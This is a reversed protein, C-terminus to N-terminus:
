QSKTQLVQKWDSKITYPFDQKVTTELLPNSPANYIIRYSM